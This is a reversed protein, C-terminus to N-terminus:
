EVGFEAFAMGFDDADRAVGDFGVGVEGALLFQGERQNGIGVFGPAVGEIHNMFLHQVPFTVHAHYATGKQDVGVALEGRLPPAYFHGAMGLRHEVGYWGPSKWTVRRSWRLDRGGGAEHPEKRMVPLLRM